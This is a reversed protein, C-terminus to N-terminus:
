CYKSIMIGNGIEKIEYLYVFTHHRVLLLCFNVSIEHNKVLTENDVEKTREM